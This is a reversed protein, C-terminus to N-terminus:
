CYRRQKIVVFRGRFRCGCRCRGSYIGVRTGQISKNNKLLYSKEEGEERGGRRKLKFVEAGGRKKKNRVRNCAAPFQVWDFANKSAIPFVCFSIAATNPTTPASPHSLSTIAVTKATTNRSVFNASAASSHLRNLSLAILYGRGGREWRGGGM